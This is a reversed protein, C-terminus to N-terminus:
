RAETYVYDHQADHLTLTRKGDHTCVIFPFGAMTPDVTVLAVTGDENSRSAMRSHWLGVDFVVDKAVHRVDIHGLGPNTYRAALAGAAAPTAPLMLRPREKAMAARMSAAAATVSGSAEPRGDYVLELLRRKFPALLSGGEDANTLLVAGIGAEPLAIWDSKYGFMSGGHHVVPVGKAHEEMLGMGYSADEGTPVTPARRALLNKASVLQEGNPLKGQSLELQVYKILDHASSWAGGAPRYPVVTYNRDMRAVAPRGDVDWAHPSAHNGALARRMDFTTEHMGLPEFIKRQMAADYAAGLERNPYVLHAGIYGAASTMLNNYQFLEGFGSTPQTAALQAFTTSAPTSRTSGFLWDFDKRPLGTCACVLHKMLVSGTTAESGLRFAPYVQTVPQNWALKGEDVLRALLLTSMGKTNSAIMFQTHADVAEARGLERVGLGGEYM